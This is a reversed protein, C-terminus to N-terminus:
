NFDYGPVDLLVERRREPGPGILEYRFSRGRMHMHPFMSLLLADRPLAGTAEVVYNPENPPIKLDHYQVNRPLIQYTVEDENVFILGIRSLDTQPVGIP